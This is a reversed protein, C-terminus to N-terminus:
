RLRREALEVRGGRAATELASAPEVSICLAYARISLNVDSTNRAFVVWRTTTGPRSDIVQFADDLQSFFGGGTLTAGAPCDAHAGGTGNAPIVGQASEVRTITTESIGEGDVGDAFGAPVGQLCTWRPTVINDPLLGAANTAVLKGARTTRSAGAGVAHKGDVRDANVPSV